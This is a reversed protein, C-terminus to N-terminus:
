ETNDFPQRFKQGDARGRMQPNDFCQQTEIQMIGVPLHVRNHNLQSRDQRQRNIKPIPDQFKKRSKRPALAPAAINERMREPERENRENDRCHRREKQFFLDSM